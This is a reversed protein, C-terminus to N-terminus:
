SASPPRRSVGHPYGDHSQTTPARPTSRDYGGTQEGGAQRTGVIRNRVASDMSLRAQAELEELEASGSATVFCAQIQTCNRLEQLEEGIGAAHGSVGTNSHM